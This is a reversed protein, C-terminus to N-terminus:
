IILNRQDDIGFTVLKMDYYLYLRKIVLDYDRNRIQLAERLKELITNLKSPPLLSIPLFGKSLIRIVQLYEKLQNIFRKYMKVYKERATTLFLLSNIAYCNVGKVSLYWYYWDKIQGAFLNENWTSKNHLRHVTDILAELTDCNYIGYMVMSNELHFIKSCQIDVKTEMAHVAEHLAKQRKYHLLSSIGEYAM